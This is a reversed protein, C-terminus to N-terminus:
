FDYNTNSLLYTIKNLGSVLHVFINTTRQKTQTGKNPKAQTQKNTSNKELSHQPHKQNVNSCEVIEIHTVQQDVREATM